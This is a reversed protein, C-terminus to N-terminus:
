PWYLFSIWSLVPALAALLLVLSAVARRPRKPATVAIVGGISAILLTYGNLWNVEATPRVILSILLGISVAVALAGGTRLLWREM